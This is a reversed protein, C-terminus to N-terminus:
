RIRGGLRTWVLLISPLVFVAVVFSCLLAFAVLFGIQRVDPFTSLALTGFAAVTTATSGLLAGGTGATARELAETADSTREMEQAFRESIHVTYDTGLGIALSMLLATLLTLPVGFVWMAGFVWTVVMGIPLVTVAGLSASGKTRRYVAMILLLIVGLALYLTQLVNDTLVDMEVLLIVDEGTPTATVGPAGDVTRASRRIADASERFDADQRVPMVVRASRYEGDHREIVAAARDPAVEFLAHYVERVNRDPVGDGTADAQEFTAAFTANEAAAAQMVTIPSQVGTAGDSREFAVGSEAFRQQARAMRLQTEPATVNGEILIQGSSVGPGARAFNQEVYRQNHLYEFEEMGFPEPVDQQWQAPQDPEYALSTDLAGFALVGGATLLLAVVVVTVASRNAASVGLTLFDRVRGADNGLAPKRRDRGYREALSDIEVKLAPVITVFVLFAAVVGLATAVVLVRIDSLPSTANSLFGIATTVTVLLLAVGVGSLARDMSPRVDRDIREGAEALTREEGGREERYRMFVHLGYDISLGILLIPAIISANGFPVNLWGLLGFMWVLTLVVGFMGVVVDLVDRYAFSLAVLILLLAIPGIFLLTDTTAQAQLEQLAPGTLMFYDDETEEDTREFVVQQADAVPGTLAFAEEPEGELLFVMQRSEATATGGDYTRPLLALTQQEEQLVRVVIERVEAEEAGELAEIQTQLDAQPDGALRVAVRNSVGVVPQEPHAAERVTEEGVVDRQFRLSRLLSAKSLVNGGENQVYVPVSVVDETNEGYNTQIYELKEQEVSDSALDDETPGPIDAAGAGVVVSALLVVAITVKSHTTVVAVTRDLLSDFM